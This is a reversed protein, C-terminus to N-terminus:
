NYVTAERLGTVKAELTRKSDMNMLRIMDGKTGAQLAKALATIQIPGKQLQMTVLDGRKVMTPKVLDKVTIPANARIIKRPSMNVLEGSTLVMNDNIMDERIDMMTIMSQRIHDGRRAPTNLVPIQVVAHAVGTFQRVRNDPTQLTASFTNRSQNYSSSIVTVSPELDHSLLIEISSGVFELDNKHSLGEDSLSEIIADKIMNEDIVSALRRIHVQDTVSARWNLNFSRAIRNLTQADWTLTTDPKPAPALVFAAHRKPADPFVDGVTINAGTVTVNKAPTAAMTENISAIFYAMCIIMVAVFALVKATNGAFKIFDKM